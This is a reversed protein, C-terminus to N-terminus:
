GEAEEGVDAQEDARKGKNSKPKLDSDWDAPRDDEFDEEDEEEEAGAKLHMLSAGCKCKKPVSKKLYVRECRTCVRADPEYAITKGTVACRKGVVQLPELDLLQGAHQAATPLKELMADEIDLKKPIRAEAETVIWGIAEPHSKLPVKFTWDSGAEDKGSIVLALSGGEFSIQKVAWWPMRRTEGKEVAIGPDGVRIPSESSTGLWITVGMIVAGAAILYSPVAKWKEDGEFSKGYAYAYLGAGLLLAGLAGLGMVLMRSTSAQAIFRREQRKPAKKKKEKSKKAM